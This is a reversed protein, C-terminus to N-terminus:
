DFPAAEETDRLSCRKEGVPSSIRLPGFNGFVLTGIGFNTDNETGSKVFKPISLVGAFKNNWHPKPEFTRM